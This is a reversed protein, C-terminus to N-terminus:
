KILTLLLQANHSAISTKYARLRHTSSVGCFVNAEWIKSLSIGIYSFSRKQCRVCDTLSFAVSYKNRQLHPTLLQKDICQNKNHPNNKNTREQHKTHFIHFMWSPHELTHTKDCAQTSCYQLLLSNQLFLNRELWDM